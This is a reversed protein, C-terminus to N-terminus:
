LRVYFTRASRYINVNIQQEQEQEQQVSRRPQHEAIASRSIRTNAVDFNRMLTRGLKIQSESLLLWSSLTLSPCFLCVLSCNLEKQNLRNSENRSNAITWGDTGLIETCFICFKLCFYIQFFQCFFNFFNCFVQLVFQLNLKKAKAAQISWCGM